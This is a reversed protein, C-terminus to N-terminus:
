IPAKASDDDDCCCSCDTALLLDPRYLPRLEAVRERLITIGRAWGIREAVVTAPM